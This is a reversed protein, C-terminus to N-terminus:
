EKSEMEPTFNIMEALSNFISTPNSIKKFESIMSFQQNNQQIAFVCMKLRHIRTIGSGNSIVKKIQKPVFNSDNIM